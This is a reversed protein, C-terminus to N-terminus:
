QGSISNWKPFHREFRLNQVLTPYKSLFTCLHNHLPALRTSHLPATGHHIVIKNGLFFYGMQLFKAGGFRLHQAFCVVFLRHIKPALEGSDCQIQGLKQPGLSL